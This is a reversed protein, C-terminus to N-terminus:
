LGGLGIEGDFADALLFAQIGHGDAAEVDHFDAARRATQRQGQEVVFADHCTAFAVHLRQHAHIQGFPNTAFGSKHGVRRLESVLRGHQGMAGDWQRHAVFNAKARM